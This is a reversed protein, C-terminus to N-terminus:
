PNPELGKFVRRAEILEGRGLPPPRGSGLGLWRRITRATEGLFEWLLERYRRQQPQCLLLRRREAAALMNALEVAELDVQDQIRQSWAAQEHSPRTKYVDRRWAAPFKVATLRPVFAFSHGGLHARWWLDMEPDVPLERYHRWGGVHDTVSRRHVVATPPIWEGPKYSQVPGIPEQDSGEPGVMRTIAFALDAGGALAAVTCSLHHPLWLDDHGLYAIFEGRAQRLGENNPGSQHRTPVPLNIWRVRPDGVGQVVTESDDTCCDGIVLLEFETFTQRLVSGISYPLVTSWNYTPIIVTVVPTTTRM